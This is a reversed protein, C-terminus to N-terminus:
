NFALSYSNKLKHRKGINTECSYHSKIHYQLLYLNSKPIDILLADDKPAINEKEKFTSLLQSNGISNKLTQCIICLKILRRIRDELLNFQLIHFHLLRLWLLLMVLYCSYKLIGGCYTSSFGKKPLQTIINRFIIRLKYLIEMFRFVLM